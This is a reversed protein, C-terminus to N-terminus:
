LEKGQVIAKYRMVERVQPLYLKDDLMFYEKVNFNKISVHYNYM